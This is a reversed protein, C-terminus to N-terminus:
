LSILCFGASDLECESHEHEVEIKIEKSNMETIVGSKASTRSKFEIAVKNKFLFNFVYEKETKKLSVSM